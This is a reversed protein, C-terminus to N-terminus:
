NAKQAVVQGLMAALLWGVARSEEAAYREVPFRDVVALGADTQLKHRVDAMLASCARLSFLQPTLTEIPRPTARLSAVVDDMEVVCADPLKIMWDELSITDRTWAKKPEVDGLPLQVSAQAAAM